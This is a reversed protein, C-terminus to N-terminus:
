SKDSRNIQDDSRFLKPLFRGTRKKYSSYNDYRHLLQREEYKSKIYFLVYLLLSILIRYVSQSYLAFGFFSFIIGTYIPHRVYKYLGSQVLKSGTRPTPFPSLNKNLQLISLSFIFVGLGSLVIAPVRFWQPISFATLRFNFVFLAFLLLQLGVLIYDTRKRKM